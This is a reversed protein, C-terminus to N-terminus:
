KRREKDGPLPSLLTYLEKCRWAVTFWTLLNFPIMLLIFWFPSSTSIFSAIIIYFYRIPRSMPGSKLSRMLNKTERTPKGERMVGEGRARTYSVMISAAMASAIVIFQWPVEKFRWLLACFVAFETLRDMVSDLVAGFRSKKGSFRAVQGDFTDFLGGALLVLGGMWLPHSLYLWAAILTVLFGMVTLANPHVRLRTLLIVIPKMLLYFGRRTREKLREKLRYINM